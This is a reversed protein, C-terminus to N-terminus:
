CKEQFHKMGSVPSEKINQSYLLFREMEESSFEDNESITGVSPRTDLINFGKTSVSGSSIINSIQNDNMIRRM